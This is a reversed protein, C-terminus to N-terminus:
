ALEGNFTEQEWMARPNVIGPRVSKELSGYRPDRAAKEFGEEVRSWERSVAETTSGHFGSLFIRSVTEFVFTSASEPLVDAATESAVNVQTWQRRRQRKRASAAAAQREFSRQRTAKAPVVSGSSSSDARDAPPAESPPRTSTHPPPQLSSSGPDAPSPDGSSSQPDIGVEALIQSLHENFTTATELLRDLAASQKEVVNQATRLGSAERRRIMQLRIAPYGVAIVAVVILVGGVM